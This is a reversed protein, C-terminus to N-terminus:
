RASLVISRVPVDTAAFKDPQFTLDLQTTEDATVEVVLKRELFGAKEHWVRFEHKGAPLGEIQFAGNADTVAVFPHDVAIQYASMWSHIDCKIQFPESEATKYTVEIGKRDKPSILVNVGQNRNPFTHVNHQIEDDSLVHVTQGVRVVSAHPFFRCNKQDLVVPEAPADFKMGKPAKRMYIFVNALGSEEGVVISEDPVEHAACVESDKAAADGAKVLPQLTPADGGYIVRGAVMGIGGKADPKADTTGEDGSNTEADATTEAPQDTDGASTSATSTSGGGSSGTSKSSDDGCGSLVIALGALLPLGTSFWSSTRRVVTSRSM